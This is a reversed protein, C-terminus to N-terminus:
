LCVTEYKYVNPKAATCVVPMEGEKNFNFFSGKGTAKSTIGPNLMSHSCALEEEEPGLNLHQVTVLGTHSDYKTNYPDM